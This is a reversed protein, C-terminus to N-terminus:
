SFLSAPRAPVCRVGSVPEDHPRQDRAGPATDAGRDGLSQAGVPHLDHGDIAVLAAIVAEVDRSVLQRVEAVDVDAHGVRRDGVRDRRRVAHCGLLPAAIEVDVEGPRKADHLRAQTPHALPPV